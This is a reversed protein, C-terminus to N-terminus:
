KREKKYFTHKGVKCTIIMGKTWYPEGFQEVNEYHTAGQTIDKGNEKFVKKIILKALYTYKYDYIEEHEWIFEDLTLDHNKGWMKKNRNKLAMCGLSLNQELRNRYVCAIAYMGTEGERVAEGILGKWLNNPIEYAYLNNISILLYLLLLITLKKM